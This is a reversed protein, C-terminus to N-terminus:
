HSIIQVQPVKRWTFPKFSVPPEFPPLMTEKPNILGALLDQTLLDKRKLPIRNLIGWIYLTMSFRKLNDHIVFGQFKKLFVNSKNQMRFPVGSFRTAIFPEVFYWLTNVSSCLAVARYGTDETGSSRHSECLLCVAWKTCHVIYQVYLTSYMFPVRCLPYQVYLTSYMFPVTYLPYHVYLTSYMFPLRCLPYDVYLTSYMFPVTCLPYVVYLTNFIFHLTCLPVTYLPVTYLPYQVYLTSYMFPVRCLPYEVYITSYILTSYMFPVRCLLYQVYLTSYM